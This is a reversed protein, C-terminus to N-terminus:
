QQTVYEQLVDLLRQFFQHCFVEAEERDLTVNNRAAFSEMMVRSLTILAPQIKWTEVHIITELVQQADKFSNFVIREAWSTITVQLEPSFLESEGFQMKQLLESNKEEHIRATAEAKEYAQTYELSLIALIMDSPINSDVLSAILLVVQDNGGQQLLSTVLVALTNDFAKAKGEQRKIQKVAAQSKKLNERFAEKAAESVGESQGAVEPNFGESFADSM